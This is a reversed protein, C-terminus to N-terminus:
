EQASIYPTLPALWPPSFNDIAQSLPPFQFNAQIVGTTSGLPVEMFLKLGRGRGTQAAPAIFCFLPRM